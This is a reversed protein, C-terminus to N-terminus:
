AVVSLVRGGTMRVLEAFSTRFVAHPAGAAAWIPDFDALTEDVVTELRAPHGLPAVGGIAQGTAAKVTDPTAREIAAKGLRAALAVTDVRHAGSTMVLLPEGDAVFVLSNAIAGVECGLAAAALVATRASDELIVVEHGAGLGDLEAIVRQVAAPHRASM